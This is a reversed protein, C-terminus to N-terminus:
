PEEQTPHHRVDRVVYLPRGRTEDTARWLYEGIVGLMVFQLGGLLLVVVTLTPWGSPTDVGMLGRILLVIAYLVGAASAVLGMYTSARLPLKSFQFMSDLALRIQTRRTWRSEGHAREHQHYRVQRQDFGLWAIMALVNRNHEGMTAIVDLVKRDVLAGSPGEAPYNALNAYRSFLKSFAKSVVNYGASGGQRRERVGWVVEAGGSWQEVFDTVLSIPEQLDAGLLIACDGEAAAFGASAAYHAGFNRALRVVTVVDDPGAAALVADATGDTSGDDVVVLDLRHDPLADRLEGFRSLLMPVTPAENLAPVVISINRPTM